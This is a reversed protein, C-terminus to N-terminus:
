EASEMARALDPRLERPSVGTKRAIMKLHRPLPARVGSEWRSISAWSVGLIKALARQSLPPTQKERFKKLPHTMDM